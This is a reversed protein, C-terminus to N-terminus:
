PRSESRYYQSVTRKTKGRDGPGTQKLARKNVRGVWLFRLGAAALIIVILGGLVYHLYNGYPRIRIVASDRLGGIMYEDTGILFELHYDASPIDYPATVNIDFYLYKQPLLNELHEPAFSFQLRNDANIELYVRKVTKDDMDNRVYLRLKLMSGPGMLYKENPTCVALITETPEIVHITATGSFSREAAAASAVLLLALFANLIRQVYSLRQM